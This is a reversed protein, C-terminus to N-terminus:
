IAVDGDERMQVQLTDQDANYEAGDILIPWLGLAEPVDEIVLYQGVPLLGRAALGGGAMRLAGDAAMLLPRYDYTPERYVRLTRDGTVEWFLRTGGVAGLDILKDIVDYASADGTEEPSAWVGSADDIKIAAIMEGVGQAIARITETTQEVGWVKFPMYAGTPNGDWAAGTYAKCVGYMAGTMGVEYYDTASVTGTREVVLWHVGASLSVGSGGWKFWVWAPEDQLLAGSITQSAVMAGPSGSTDGYIGLRINDGPSGVRGVQVGVRGVSMASGLTVRQAIRYGHLTVTISNGPAENNTPRPFIAVENGQKIFISPGAAETVIFGGWTAAVDVELAEDGPDSVRLIGSNNASYMLLFLAGKRLFGLGAWTDKIDNDPEFSISTNQYTQVEADTGETVTYVGNNSQATGAVTIKSGTRLAGLRGDLDHIAALNRTFGIDTDTLGWGVAQREAGGIETFEVRSGTREWRRWRLTEAWGLCLLRAEARGGGQYSRTARPQRMAGLLRGQVTTAADSEGEGAAHLYEKRGYRRVSAADEAWGTTGRDFGGGALEEAYAVAIRNAMGDLSIAFRWGSQTTVQVENVFGSWRVEGGGDLIEVPRRLWTLVDWLGAPAGNVAIEAALAGGKRNASWFVPELALGAPEGGWTYEVLPDDVGLAVGFSM